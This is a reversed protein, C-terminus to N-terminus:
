IKIPSLLKLVEELEDDSLAPLSVVGKKDRIFQSIGPFKKEIDTFMHPHDGFRKFVKMIQQERDYKHLADRVVQILNENNWPKTLFRFVEADNIVKIASELSAHGTLLIRVTQPYLARILSLFEAGQMKAMREDTIVVKITRERM